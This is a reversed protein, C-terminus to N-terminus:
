CRSPTPAATAFTTSATAWSPWARPLQRGPDAARRHAGQDGRRRGAAARDRERGQSGQRRAQDKAKAAEKKVEVEDSKPKFPSDTAAALTVLYIRSMDHYVYDYEVASYIPNFDRDSVFFLYKGDASFAPSASAYWGDTM